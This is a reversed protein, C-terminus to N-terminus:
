TFTVYPIINSHVRVSYCKVNQQVKSYIRGHVNKKVAELDSKLGPFVHVNDRTQMKNKVQFNDINLSSYDSCQIKYLCM